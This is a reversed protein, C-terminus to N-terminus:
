LIYVNIFFVVEIFGMLIRAHMQTNTYQTCNIWCVFFVFMIMIYFLTKPATCVLKSRM